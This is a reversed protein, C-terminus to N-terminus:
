HGAPRAEEPDFAGRGGRQLRLGYGRIKAYLTPKAIGLRRATETVNFGCARLANAIAEKEVEELTRVESAPHVPPPPAADPKQGGSFWAPLDDVCATEADTMNVLREVTNELERVNGPWPHAVLRQMLAPSVRFVNKRLLQAYKRLFHHVLVPVDEPRERLSPLEIGIVHCRYYLDERFERREIMAQLDRNSASIVRVDIPISRTDGVRVVEREQLVRLLKAQVDIPLESIEDLFITGSSAAEFKGPRGERTAGTFSGPAYGFLESEILDRPLAACNIAIFPGAARASANHIAQAFVEKGVGSQGILLVNAFGRAAKRAAEVAAVLPPATGVVDDFSYRAHNGAIRDAMRRARQIERFSNVISVVQGAANKIPVATDVLHLHRQPSDIILERDIYGEGTELLPQIIPAFDLLSGFPKGISERPHLSLIRGAAANMHKVMLDRDVVLLGDTIHEVIASQEQLLAGQQEAVLEASHAAAWLHALLRLEDGLDASDPRALLAVFLAEGTKSDAARLHLRDFGQPQVVPLYPALAAGEAPLAAMLASAEIGPATWARRLVRGAGFLLAGHGQAVAREVLVDWVEDLMPTM